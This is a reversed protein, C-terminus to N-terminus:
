ETETIDELWIDKIVITGATEDEGEIKGMSIYFGINNSTEESVDFTTDLNYTEDKKAAIDTGGYWTYSANNM